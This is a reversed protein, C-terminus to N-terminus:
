PSKDDQLANRLATFSAVLSIDEESSREGTTEDPLVSSSRTSRRSGPPSRSSPSRNLGSTGARGESVCQIVEENEQPLKAFQTEEVLGFGVAKSKRRRCEESIISQRRALESETFNTVISSRVSSRTLLETLNSVEEKPRMPLAYAESQSEALKINEPENETEIPILKGLKQLKERELKKRRLVRKAEISMEDDSGSDYALDDIIMTSTDPSPLLSQRATAGSTRGSVSSSVSTSPRTPTAGTNDDRNSM